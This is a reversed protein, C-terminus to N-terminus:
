IITEELVDQPINKRISVLNSSRVANSFGYKNFLYERLQIVIEKAEIQSISDDLTEYDYILALDNEENFLPEINYNLWEKNKIISSHKVLAFQNIELSYIYQNNEEVFKVTEALNERKEGPFGVIIWLHNKIGVKSTNRIVNKINLVNHGKKMGAVIEKNGSEFGFYLWRCGSQFILKCFDEEMFEKALIVYAEWRIELGRELILTSIEKMMKLPMADDVFKFNKVYYKKILTEIDDVVQLSSRQRHGIDYGFPIDCFSCRDWYCRRSAYIPLIPQQDFYNDLLLGDFNPTPLETVLTSVNSTILKSTNNYNSKEKHIIDNCLNVLKNEGEGIIANDYYTSLVNTNGFFQQNRTVVNGGIVVRIDPNLERLIKLLTFSPILQTPATISLSIIKPSIDFLIRPIHEKYFHIFINRSGENLSQLIDKSSFENLGMKFNTFSIEFPKQAVSIIDFALNIITASFDREEENESKIGDIAQEIYEPVYKLLPHAVYNYDDSSITTNTKLKDFCENLFKSSLINHYFELNIDIQACSIGESDLAAKLAPSALYPMHPYFVPPFIILLDKNQAM